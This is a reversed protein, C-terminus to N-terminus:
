LLIEPPYPSIEYLYDRLQINSPIFLGGKGTRSAPYIKWSLVATQHGANFYVLTLISFWKIQMALSNLNPNV